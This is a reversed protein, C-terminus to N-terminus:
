LLRAFEFSILAGMSHGFFAFPKDLYPLLHTALARILPLLRDFSRDRLRNAHGPLQIACSEVAIPMALPWERYTLPNGGAYPFCFLRMRAQPRPHPFSVWPNPSANSVTM